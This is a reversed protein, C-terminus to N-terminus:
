FWTKMTKIGCYRCKTFRANKLDFTDISTMSEFDM